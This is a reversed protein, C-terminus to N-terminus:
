GEVEQGKDLGLERCFLDLAARIVSSRTVAGYQGPQHKLFEVIEDARRAADAPIWISTCKEKESM